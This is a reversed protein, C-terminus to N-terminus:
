KDLDKELKRVEIAIYLNFINLIILMIDYICMVINWEIIRSILCFFTLILLIWILIIMFM